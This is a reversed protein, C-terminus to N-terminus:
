AETALLRLCEDLRLDYTAITRVSSEQWAYQRGRSEWELCTILRLVKGATALRRLRDHDSVQTFGMQDLVGALDRWREDVAFQALDAIPVGYGSFEWDFAILELAGARRRIRVNKSQLDGHILGPPVDEPLIRFTDWRSELLDCRDVAAALRTRGDADITAGALASSMAQRATRLQRRYFAADHLPLLRGLRMASTIAHVAGLWRATLTRHADVRAMCREGDVHELFIWCRGGDRAPAIGHCRPTGPVTALVHEYLTAEVAAIDSSKAVVDRGTRACGVLRCVKPKRRHKKLVDIREPVPHRGGLSTWGDVLEEFLAPDAADDGTSSKSM